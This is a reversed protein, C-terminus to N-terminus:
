KKKKPRGRKRVPKVTVAAQGRLDRLKANARKVDREADAIQGFLEKFKAVAIEEQDKALEEKAKKEAAVLVANPFNKIDETDMDVEILEKNTSILELGDKNYVYDNGGVQIAYREPDSLTAVIRGYSGTNISNRGNKWNTLGMLKAWHHCSSYYQGDDIVRVRDGLMFKMSDVLEFYCDGYSRNVDDKDDTLYIGNDYTNTATYIVGETIYSWDKSTCRVRDGVKFKSMM